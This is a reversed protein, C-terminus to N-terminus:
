KIQFCSIESENEGEYVKKENYFVSLVNYFTSIQFWVKWEKNKLNHWCIAAGFVNVTTKKKM